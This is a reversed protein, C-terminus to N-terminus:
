EKLNSLKHALQKWQTITLEQARAKVPIGIGVLLDEACQKEIHLSNAINNTLMKRRASYGGRVTRFFDKEQADSQSRSIERIRIVCSEVKPVPDFSTAPVSFMYEPCGFYQVSVSLISMEGPAACIREGVEKQVMLTMQTPQMESELFFRIISSTIYYPLNAVVKYTQIDRDRLYQPLNFRRIDEHLLTFNKYHSFARELAGILDQDIELAIVEAGSDLLKQTLAGDGPGVEIICDGKHIDSIDIIHTIVSQDHLFNQGLSKKHITKM